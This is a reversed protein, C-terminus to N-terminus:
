QKRQYNKSNDSTVNKRRPLEVTNLIFNGVLGNDHRSAVFMHLLSRYGEEIGKYGDLLTHDICTRHHEENEQYISGEIHYHLGMGEM